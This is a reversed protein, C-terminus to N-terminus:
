LKFSKIKSDTIKNISRKVESIVYDIEEESNYRGLSFRLSNYAEEDTKGMAKLVYSPELSASTCAAGTSLAVTRNLSAIMSESDADSFSLNTVHALRHETSGNIKTGEIQLLANELRDRFLRVRATEEDMELECIECALGLGVIGPVNLTGSRIGREHGGGDFLPALKVRPNRRRVYLAGAGKPGYIKHASLALIDIGEEQVNIRLKGAAQTADTFFLVQHKKAIAGIEKVPQITGTENNAYMVAILITTPRIASELVEVNIRGDDGVELWTIEAGLKELHKCCDIVAKHETSVTIIHNGKERYTEFVGKIALNDSETAGSTFIVENPEAGILRAVQERAYTVAEEAQWGFSHNRSAANGYYESFYPLMAEVVRKDCPTTANHDM